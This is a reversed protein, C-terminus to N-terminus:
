SELIVTAVAYHKEDSISIHSNVVGKDDFLSQLHGSVILYPQGTQHHSVEIQQWSVGNGIGNGIAKVAAEKAAFRKALFRAQASIEVNSNDSGVEVQQRPRIRALENLALYDEYEKPTLIRQAMSDSRDVSAQLRAIEVIDTGVGIISM